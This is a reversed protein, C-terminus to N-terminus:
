LGKVKLGILKVLLDRAFDALQSPTETKPALLTPKQRFNGNLGLLKDLDNVLEKIDKPEM